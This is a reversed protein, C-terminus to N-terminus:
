RSSISLCSCSRASASSFCFCFGLGSSSSCTCASCSVIARRLSSSCDRGSNSFISRLYWLRSFIATFSASATKMMIMSTLPEISSSFFLMARCQNESCYANMFRRYGCVSRTNMECVSVASSTVSSSNKLPRLDPPVMTLPEYSNASEMMLSLYLAFLVFM